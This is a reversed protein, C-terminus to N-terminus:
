GFFRVKCPNRILWLQITQCAFKYLGFVGIIPFVRQFNTVGSIRSNKLVFYIRKQPETAKRRLRFNLRAFLDCGLIFWCFGSRFEESDNQHNLCDLSKM